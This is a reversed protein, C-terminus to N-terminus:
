VSTGTNRNTHWNDRDSHWNDRDTHWNDRDTLTVTATATVTVSPLVTATATITVSPTITMTPTGVTATPTEPGTVTITGQMSPHIECFYNYVGAEDFFYSFSQGQALTGSDWLGTNSTTTHAAGDFNTWTVQTNVPITLNQPIFAFGQIRVTATAPVTTGTPTPDATATPTQPTATPGAAAEPAFALGRFVTNTPATYLTSLTGTISDTFAATDVFAVVSNGASSDSTAYLVAQQESGLGVIGTFSGALAGQATWSSGDFSFKLLGGSQSAVYLTDDGAVAASRDVFVFGYPSNGNAAILQSSVVTTPLGNGVENVGNVPSSGSSLYLQGDNIYPVRTNTTPTFILTTSIGNYPMYRLGGSGSSGNGGIWLHSGDDTVAGRINGGGYADTITTSTDITAQVDVLGVVRPVSTTSTGPVGPTGPATAYGALALYRGDASRTLAGESTSTGSLTLPANTGTTTVPLAYSQVFDGVLTLEDLFVPQSASSLPTSGDGVRLVVINGPSFGTGLGQPAQAAAGTFLTEYTPTYGFVIIMALVFTGGLWRRKMIKM